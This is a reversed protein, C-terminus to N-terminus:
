PWMDSELTFIYDFCIIAFVNEKQSKKFIPPVFLVGVFWFDSEHINAPFSYFPFHISDFCNWM